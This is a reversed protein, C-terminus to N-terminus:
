KDKRKPPGTIGGGPQTSSLPDSAPFTQELEKSLEKDESEKTKKPKKENPM